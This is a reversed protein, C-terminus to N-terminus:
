GPLSISVLLGQPARNAARITGGHLAMIRRAIALGLGYGSESAGSGRQFPEFIRELEAAPLGPGDDAVDIVHHQGDTRLAVRVEGAPAGYRLANRVVNELASHLMEADAKVWAPRVAAEFLVRQSRLQAEFRADALVDEILAGLEVSETGALAQRSEARALTLLQEILANIRATEREIRQFTQDPLAHQQQALDIALQLRALPSRLEHSVDHLLKRQQEIQQSLRDAMQDFDAALEALEDGREALAPAMRHSLAGDAFAHVGHRLQRVPRSVHRALLWASVLSALMGGALPISPFPHHRPPPPPPPHPGAAMPPLPPPHQPSTWWIVGGVMLVTVLQTALLLAFFKWFLRGM